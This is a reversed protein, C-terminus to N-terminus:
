WGTAVPGYQSGTGPLGNTLTDEAYEVAASLLNLAIKGNGKVFKIEDIYKKQAWTSEGPAVSHQDYFIFMTDGALTRNGGDPAVVQWDPEATGEQWVKARSYSGSKYNWKVIYWTDVLWTGINVDGENSEGPTESWVAIDWTGPINANSLNLRLTIYQTYLPELYIDWALVDAVNTTTLADVKFRAQMTFEDTAWPATAGGYYPGYSVWSTIAPQNLDSHDFVATTGDCYPTAYGAGSNHYWQKNDANLGLQGVTTRNFNDFMTVFDDVSGKFKSRVSLWRREGQLSAGSLSTGIAWNSNIAFQSPGGGEWNIIAKLQNVGVRWRLWLGGDDVLSGATGNVRTSGNDSDAIVMDYRHYPFAPGSNILSVSSWHGSLDQTDSLIFQHEVMGIAALDNSGYDCWTTFHFYLDIYSLGLEAAKALIDIGLDVSCRPYDGVLGTPSYSIYGAGVHGDDAYGAGQGTGIAEGSSVHVYSSSGESLVWTGLPGDGWSGSGDRDFQDEPALGGHRLIEIGEFTFYIDPSVVTSEGYVQVTFTSARSMTPIEGLSGGMYSDWFGPEAEGAPWTRAYANTKTMYLRTYMTRNWFNEVITGEPSFYPVYDSYGFVVDWGVNYLNEGVHGKSANYGPIVGYRWAAAIPSLGTIVETDTLHFNIQPHLWDWYGAAIPGNTMRWSILVDMPMLWVQGNPQIAFMPDEADYVISTCRITVTGDSNTTVTGTASKYSWSTDDYRAGYYDRYEGASGAADVLASGFASIFGPM